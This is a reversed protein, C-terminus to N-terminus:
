LWYFYHGLPIEHDGHGYPAGESGSDFFEAIRPENLQAQGISM